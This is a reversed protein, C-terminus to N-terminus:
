SRGAGNPIKDSGADAQLVGGPPNFIVQYTATLVSGSLVLFANRRDGLINLNTQTILVMLRESFEAEVQNHINSTATHFVPNGEKDKWNLVHLEWLGGDKNYTRRLWRGLLQLAELKSREAAIHFVTKGSVTVDTICQPCTTLLKAVLDATVAFDVQGAAAAIHLPTDIFPVEDIQELLYPDQRFLEYLDDINGSHAVQTWNM